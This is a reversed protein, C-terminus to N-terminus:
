SSKGHRIENLYSLLCSKEELSLFQTCLLKTISKYHLFVSANLNSFQLFHWLFIQRRPNRLIFQVCVYGYYLTHTFIETKITPAERTTWSNFLRSAICSVRDQTLFIEQLLSLSDMGTNKPKGPSESPLSDGAIHSVQTWDRPQSPGRSSPMAVWVLIRAQLIGM